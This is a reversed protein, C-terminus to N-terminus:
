SRSWDGMKNWMARNWGRAAIKTGDVANLVIDVLELKLALQVTQRFVEGIVKRNDRWFRWLANHDPYHMGTLWMLGVHDRCAKELKRTSRIKELYGYVWVKLLM